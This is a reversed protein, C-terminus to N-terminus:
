TQTMYKAISAPPKKDKFQRFYAFQEAFWEAPARFQYNSIGKSRESVPYSFWIGPYAEHYARSDGGNIMENWPSSESDRIQMCDMYGGTTTIADWDDLLSGLPASADKPKTALGTLLVEKLMAILDNETPKKGPGVFGTYSKKYFVKAIEDVNTSKWNGFAPNEMGDRMVHNKDDVYHGLEHLGTTKYYEVTKSKKKNKQNELVETQNEDGLQNFVIKKNTYYSTGMKPDTEFEIKQLGKIQEPPVMGMLNYLGPLRTVEMGAAAEVKVNYCAAIAAMCKAQQAPDVTSKGMEKIMKDIQQKGEPTAAQEAFQKELAPELLAVADKNLAFLAQKQKGTDGAKPVDELRKHLADYKKTLDAKQAPDTLKDIAAKTDDLTRQVKGTADDLSVSQAQLSATQMNLRNFAGLLEGVSSATALAHDRDGKLSARLALVAGQQQEPLGSITRDAAKFHQDILLYAEYAKKADGDAKEAAAAIRDLEDEQARGSLDDAKELRAELADSVRKVPNDAAIEAYVPLWRHLSATNRDATKKAMKAHLSLPAASGGPPPAAAPAAGSAPPAAALVPAGGVRQAATVSKAIDQLLAPAAACQRDIDAPTVAAAIADRRRALQSVVTDLVQRPQPAEIATVATNLDAMAADIETLRAKLDDPSSGSPTSAPRASRDVKRGLFSGIWADQESAAPERTQISQSM